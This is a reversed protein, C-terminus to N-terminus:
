ADAPREPPEDLRSGPPIGARDSEPLDFRSLSPSPGAGLGAARDAPDSAPAMPGSGPPLAAGGCPASGVCPGSFVGAAAPAPPKPPAPAPDAPDGHSCCCTAGCDMGCKCRHGGHVGQRPKGAPAASAMAGAGLALWLGILVATALSLRCRLARPHRSRPPVLRSSELAPRLNGRTRPGAM